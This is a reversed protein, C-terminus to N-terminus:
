WKKLEITEKVVDVMSTSKKRNGSPSRDDVDPDELSAKRLKTESLKETVQRRMEEAAAKEKKQKQEEGERLEEFEAM